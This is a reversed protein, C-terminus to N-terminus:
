AARDRAPGLALGAPEVRRRQRLGPEDAPGAEVAALDGTEIVPWGGPEGALPRHDHVDMPAGLPLRQRSELPALGIEQRLEAHRDDLGVDPARGAVALR